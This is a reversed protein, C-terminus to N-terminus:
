RIPYDTLAKWPTEPGGKICKQLYAGIEQPTTPTNDNLLALNDAKEHGVTILSHDGRSGRNNYLGIAEILERPAYNSNEEKGYGWLMSPETAKVSGKHIKVRPVVEPLAYCAHGICCRAGNGTDLKGQAKRRLPNLLFQIVRERNIKVQKRTLKM